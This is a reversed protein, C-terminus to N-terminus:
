ESMIKKKTEAFLEAIRKADFKEKEYGTFKASKAYDSIHQGSLRKEDFEISNLLKLGGDAAGKAAAFVVSYKGPKALGMDLVSGKVDFKKARRALMLGTLYATPINSRPAWQYKRLSNSNVSTLIKDGAPEYNVLQVLVGKNSRRVVVRPMDGKLLEVRKKYDTVATRRRSRIM